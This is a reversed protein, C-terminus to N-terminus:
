AGLVRRLRSVCNQIYAEVTKPPRDGWLEDIVRDTSVVENPRLLLMALVGRQKPGGLALPRGRDRAELPGLLRFEM